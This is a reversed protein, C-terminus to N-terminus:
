AARVVEPGFRTFSEKGVKFRGVYPSLEEVLAAVADLSGLGDLPLCVKDRAQLEQASLDPM